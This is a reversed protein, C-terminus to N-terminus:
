AKCVILNFIFTGNFANTALAENKLNITVTNTTCVVSTVNPVGGTNSGGARTVIAIDGAAVGACTIALAQSATHATTLSETTIVAAFKGTTMTVANSTLTKTESDLDIRALGVVNLGAVNVSSDAVVAKSAAATGATVGDIFGLETTSIGTVTTQLAKVATQLEKIWKGASNANSMKRVTITM